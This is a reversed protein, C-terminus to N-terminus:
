NKFTKFYALGTLSVGLWFGSRSWPKAGSTIDSTMASYTCVSSIRLNYIRTPYNYRKASNKYAGFVEESFDHTMAGLVMDPKADKQLHIRYVPTRKESSSSPGETSVKVLVVKRGTLEERHRWLYQQLEAPDAGVAENEIFSSKSIDRRLGAEM